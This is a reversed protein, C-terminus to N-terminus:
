EQGHDVIVSTLTIADAKVFGATLGLREGTEPMYLAVILRYEGPPADSAVTFRYPDRLVEGPSWMSTPADGRAPAADKQDYVQGDPGLLQLTVTYDADAPALARWVLNVVLEDGPCLNSSPSHLSFGVLEIRDGFVAGVPVDVRPLNFSRVRGEVLVSGLTAEGATQGTEDLLTLSL